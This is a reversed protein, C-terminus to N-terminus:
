VHGLSELARVAARLDQTDVVNYREFVARTRHGSMRMVVSEPVGVRRARTIFSRRLDHFWLGHLEALVVARRFRKKIDVWRTKTKLNVFVFGKKKFRSPLTRLAEKARSTMVVLRPEDTKTDEPALAITSAELDVQEWRLALLEEKRMGTDFALLLIPQLAEEAAAFLRQFGNEDVVMRRVNPKRLLQVARLPHDKLQGSKVAYGLVRKLLEVERDLTAPTPPTGRRTKEKLREGRYADVEKLTLRDAQMTGLHRLLHKARGKDTKWSDNDREGAPAYSKWLEAVTHWPLRRRGLFSGEFSETRAKAAVALAQERTPIRKKRFRVHRGDLITSHAL